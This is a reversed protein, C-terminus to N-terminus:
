LNWGTARQRGPKKEVTQTLQMGTGSPQSVELSVQRGGSVPVLGALQFSARGTQSAGAAPEMSDAGM